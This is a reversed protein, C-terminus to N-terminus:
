DGIIYVVAPGDVCISETEYPEIIITRVGERSELEDAIAKTSAKQIYPKAEANNIQQESFRKIHEAFRKDQRIREYFDTYDSVNPLKIEFEM